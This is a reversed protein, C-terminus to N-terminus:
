GQAKTAEYRLRAGAVINEVVTGRFPKLQVYDRQEIGSRTPFSVGYNLKM